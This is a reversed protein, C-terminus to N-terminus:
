GYTKSFASLMSVLFHKVDDWSHGTTKKLRIPTMEPNDEFNNAREDLWLLLRIEEKLFGKGIPKLKLSYDYTNMVGYIKIEQGEYSWTAKGDFYKKGVVRTRGPYIIRYMGRVWPDLYYRMVSNETMKYLWMFNVGIGMEMM